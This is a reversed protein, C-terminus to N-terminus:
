CIKHWNKTDSKVFEIQNLVILSVHWYGSDHTVNIYSSTLNSKNISLVVLM